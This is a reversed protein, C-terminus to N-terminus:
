TNNRDVGRYPSTEPRKVLCVTPLHQIVTAATTFEEEMAQRTKVSHATSCGQAATLIAYEVVLAQRTVKLLAISWRQTAPITADNTM